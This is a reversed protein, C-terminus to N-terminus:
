SGLFKFLSQFSVGTALVVFQQVFGVWSESEFKRLGGMLEQAQPINTSQDFKRKSLDLLADISISDGKVFDYFNKAEGRLSCLLTLRSTDDDLNKLRKNLEFLRLWHIVDENSNGSFIPLIGQATALHQPLVSESM